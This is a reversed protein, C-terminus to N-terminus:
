VHAWVLFWGAYSALEALQQTAGLGDGTYGSLRRKLMRGMLLSSFLMLALPLAASWWPWALWSMGLLLALPPVLATAAQTRSLHQALPKAKAHELDGAYPLCAILSISFWRSWGHSFILAWCALTIPLSALLSVKLGLMLILGATGYTGLRSDKMIDLAKERSVSGGLADCTDAFGDEHFAGTLILGCATSGLAAIVPNFLWSLLAFALALGSGILLGVLPFYRASQHLWQPDFQALQPLPLRTLFQLAVLVLRLEQKLTHM